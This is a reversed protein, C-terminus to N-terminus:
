ICLFFIYVIYIVLILGGLIFPGMLFFFILIFLFKVFSTTCSGLLYTSFHEANNAISSIYILVIM